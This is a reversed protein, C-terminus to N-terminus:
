KLLSIMFNRTTFTIQLNDGAQYTKGSAFTKIAYLANKMQPRTLKGQTIVRLCEQAVDDDVNIFFYRSYPSALNLKKVEDNIEKKLKKQNMWLDLLQQKKEPSFTQLKQRVRNRLYDDSANTSDEYWQLNNKQAYDRIESKTKNTLPRVIDSDLVALGRWGTGRILNIAITEIVDDAHHATVIQAQYKKAVERLFLYRRARALEESATKGLEERREEFPLGYKKALNAVFLANEASDDRIGHDFHAVILENDTNKSLIDLLVVSDVGGSVAVIYKAM